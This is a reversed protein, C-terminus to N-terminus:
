RPILKRLSTFTNELILGATLDDEKNAAVLQIGLAGGLSQGYVVVKTGNLDERSHLYDLSAQADLMMGQEDPTGTSAGYGRCELMFVNCGLDEQLKLAIPVRHGINGANGHFMLITLRRKMDQVRPKILFAALTEGDVTKIRLDEYQDHHFDAPSPIETRAGAPVNRPYILESFWLSNIIIIVTLQSVVLVLMSRNPM